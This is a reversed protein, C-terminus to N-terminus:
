VDDQKVLELCLREYRAHMTGRGYEAIAKNRATIGLRIALTDDRLLRELANALAIPDSEPVLLGDEENTIVGCVGPVASAVVACGAAMGEVLALPMGEYHTILVCIRHSLLLEPVNRHLGLFQVQDRLGLEASLRELAARQRPKGTGALLLVPMLGRERLLAIAHLLTPHDKQRSLRAVMVIGPIRKSLPQAEAGAFPVLNIGNPIAITRESPMDMDLLAQRVGESVGIIRATRKALWRTQARRWPTYRERTNHEVHILHPIGALLGAYRGWLHESFGHALLINPRFQHCLRLLAWITAIHSWGPVVCVPVGAAELEAIRQPDTKRKRRLVLLPEIQPSTRAAQVLQIAVQTAGGSFGGTVFHLVRINRPPPIKTAPLTLCKKWLWQLLFAWGYRRSFYRLRPWIRNLEYCLKPWPNRILTGKRQGITSADGSQTIVPPHVSLVTLGYEWPHQLDCDVPRQCHRFAELWRQAGARTWLAATTTSPVSPGYEVLCCPGLRALEIRRRRSQHLKLVDWQLLDAQRSNRLVLAETIVACSDADLLADDELILAYELGSELFRQLTKNHSLYCGVENRRVPKYYRNERTYEGFTAEDLLAGDVGSVREYAIGLAALRAHMTTLREQSRDLNILYCGCDPPLV